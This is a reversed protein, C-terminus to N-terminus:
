AARRRRAFILAGAMGVGILALSAPEPVAAPTGTFGLAASRLTTSTGENAVTNWPDLMTEYEFILTVPNSTSKSIGTISRSYTPFDADRPFSEDSFAWENFSFPVSGVSSGDSNPSITPTFKMSATTNVDGPQIGPGMGTFHAFGDGTGLLNLTDPRSYEFQQDVSLGFSLPGSIPGLATFVVNNLQISGGSASASLVVEGSVSQVGTVTASFPIIVTQGVAIASAGTNISNGLEAVLASDGMFTITGGLLPHPIIALSFVAFCPLALRRLTSM